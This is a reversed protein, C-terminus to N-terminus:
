SRKQTQLMHKISYLDVPYRMLIQISIRHFLGIRTVHIILLVIRRLLLISELTVSVVSISSFDVSKWSHEILETKSPCQFTSNFSTKHSDLVIHITTPAPNKVPHKTLTAQFGRRYTWKGTINVIFKTVCSGSLTTFTCSYEGRDYCTLKQFLLSYSAKNAESTFTAGYTRTPDSDPWQNKGEAYAVIRNKIMNNEQDPIYRDWASVFPNPVNVDGTIELTGGYKGTKRVAVPESGSFLFNLVIM